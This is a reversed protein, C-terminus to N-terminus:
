FISCEVNVKTDDTTGDGKAGFNKVNFITSTKRYQLSNPMSEGYTPYFREKLQRSARRNQMKKSVRTADVGQRSLWVLLFTLISFISLKM